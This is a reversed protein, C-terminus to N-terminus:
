ANYGKRLAPSISYVVIDVFTNVFIVIMVLFAIVASAVPIDRLIIAQYLLDGLGPMSFIREVVVVGTMLFGIQLGLIALLSGAVAPLGHKIYAGMKSAGRLRAFHIFDKHEIMSLANLTYRATIAGQTLGLTLTPLIYSHMGDYGGSPLLGAGISLTSILFLGFWVVPLAIFVTIMFLIIKYGIQGKYVFAITAFLVGFVVAFVLSMLALPMTIAIRQRVINMVPMDFIFSRGLDGHFVASIWQIFRDIVPLNLGLDQRLTQSDGTTGSLVTAVDGPLSDISVFALVTAFLAGLVIKTTLKLIGKLGYM